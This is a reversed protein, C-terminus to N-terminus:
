TAFGARPRDIIVLCDGGSVLYVFKHVSLSGTITFSYDHLKIFTILIKCEVETEGFEISAVFALQCITDDILNYPQGHQYLYFEEATEMDVFRLLVQSYHNFNFLM